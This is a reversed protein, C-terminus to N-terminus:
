RKSIERQLIKIPIDLAESIDKLLSFNKHFLPRKDTRMLHDLYQRTIGLRDSLSKVSMGLRTSKEKIIVGFCTLTNSKFDIFPKLVEEDFELAQSLKIYGACSVSEYREEVCTVYYPVYGVKEALQERNLGLTIRKAYVLMGLRHKIKEPIEIFVLFEIIDIDLASALKYIVCVSPDHSGNIISRIANYSVNSLTALTKTNIGKIKLLCELYSGLKKPRKKEM